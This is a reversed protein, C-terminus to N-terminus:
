FSSIYISFLSFCFYADMGTSTRAEMAYIIHLIKCRNRDKMVIGSNVRMMDVSCYPIYVTYVEQDDIKVTKRVSFM